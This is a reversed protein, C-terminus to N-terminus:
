WRGPRCSCAPGPRGARVPAPGPRSARSRVRPRGRRGPRRGEGEVAGAGRGGFNMSTPRNVAKLPGRWISTCIAAGCPWNLRVSSAAWRACRTSCTVRRHVGNERDFGQAEAPRAGRGADVDLAQSTAAPSVSKRCPGLPQPLLVSSDSCPRRAPPRRRGRGAAPDRSPRARPRRARGSGRPARRSCRGATRVQQGVEAHEVVHQQGARERGRRRRAAHRLFARRAAPRAAAALPM